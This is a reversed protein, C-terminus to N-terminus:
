IKGDLRITELTKKNVRSGDHIVDHFLAGHIGAVCDFTICTALGGPRYACVTRERNKKKM